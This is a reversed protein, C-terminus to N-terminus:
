WTGEALGMIDLPGDPAEAIKEPCWLCIIDYIIMKKQSGFTPYLSTLIAM